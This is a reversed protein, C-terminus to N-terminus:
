YWLDQGQHSTRMKWRAPNIFDNVKTALM